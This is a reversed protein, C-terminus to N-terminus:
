PDRLVGYSALQLERGDATGTVWVKAGTRETLEVPPNLLRLETAGVLWLDPGRVQLVGVFPREGAVELIEYGTAHIAGDAAARAPAVSGWIRVRAGSLRGIEDRLAGEVTTTRGDSQIAVSALPEAGIVSVTGQVTDGALGPAEGAPTAPAVEEPTSRGCGAAIAIILMIDARMRM